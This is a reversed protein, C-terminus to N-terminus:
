LLQSLLSLTVRPLGRQKAITAITANQISHVSARKYAAPTWMIDHEEIWPNDSTSIAKVAARHRPFPAVKPYIRSSLWDALKCMCLGSPILRGYKEQLRQKTGSGIVLHPGACLQAIRIGAASSSLSRLHLGGGQRRRSKAHRMHRTM